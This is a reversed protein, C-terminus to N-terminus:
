ESEECQDQAKGCPRSWARPWCGGRLGVQRPLDVGFQESEISGVTLCLAASRAEADVARKQPDHVVPNQDISRSGTIHTGELSIEDGESHTM